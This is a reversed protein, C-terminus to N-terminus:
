GAGRDDLLANIQKVQEPLSFRCCPSLLEPFGAILPSAASDAPLRTWGPPIGLSQAVFTQERTTRM